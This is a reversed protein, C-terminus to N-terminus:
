EINLAERLLCVRLFVQVQYTVNVDTMARFTFLYINFYLKTSVSM